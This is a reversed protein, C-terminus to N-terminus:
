QQQKQFHQHVKEIIEDRSLNGVIFFLDNYADTIALGGTVLASEARSLTNYQEFAEVLEAKQSFLYFAAVSVYLLLATIFLRGKGILTVPLWKMRLKSLITTTM